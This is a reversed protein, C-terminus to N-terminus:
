KILKVILRYGLPIPILNDERELYSLYHTALSDGLDKIELVINGHGEIKVTYATDTPKPNERDVDLLLDMIKIFDGRNCNTKNRIIRAKIVRRYEADTLTRSDGGSDSFLSFWVGKDFPEARPNGEFGFYPKSFYDILVRSQGVISGILDLNRGTSKDIDLITGAFKIYLDQVKMKYEILTQVIADYVPDEDFQNTYRSKSLAVYDIMEMNM